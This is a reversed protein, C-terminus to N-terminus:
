SPFSPSVIFAAQARHQTERGEPSRRVLIALATYEGQPLAKFPELTPQLPAQEGVHQRCSLTEFEGNSVVVCLVRNDAHKEVRVVVRVTAPDTHITHLLRISVPAASSGTGALALLFPLTLLLGKALVSM